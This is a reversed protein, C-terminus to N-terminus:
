TQKKDLLQQMQDMTEEAKTIIKNLPDFINRVKHREISHSIARFLIQITLEDKRIIDQAGLRLVEGELDPVNLQTIVVVPTNPFVSQFRSVVETGYGNPLILDLLIVDFKEKSMKELAEKICSSVFVKANMENLIITLLNASTPSDEVLLIKKNHLM